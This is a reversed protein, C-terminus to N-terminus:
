AGQVLTSSRAQCEVAGGRREGRGRVGQHDRGTALGGGAAHVAGCLRISAAERECELM